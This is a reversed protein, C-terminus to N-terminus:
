NNWADYADEIKPYFSATVTGDPGQEVIAGANKSAIKGPMTKNINLYLGRFMGNKSGDIDPKANYLFKAMPSEFSLKSSIKRGVNLTSVVNKLLEAAKEKSDDKIDDLQRVELVMQKLAAIMEQSNM